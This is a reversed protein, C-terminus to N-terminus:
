EGIRLENVFKVDVPGRAKDETPMLFVMKRMDDRYEWIATYFPKKLDEKVFFFTEFNRTKGGLKVDVPKWGKPVKIGKTEMGIALDRNTLNFVRITGWNFSSKNDDIVVAKLGIPSEEDKILIALPQSMGEGIRLSIGLPKGDEDVKDPAVLQVAGREAPLKIVESRAAPHLAPMPTLKGGWALALERESIEKDWPLIRLSAANTLSTLLILAFLAIKM